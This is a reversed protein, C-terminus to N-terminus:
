PARRRETPLARSRSAHAPAAGLIMLGTLLMCCSGPFSVWVGALLPLLTCSQLLALQRSPVIFRDIWDTGQGTAGVDFLARQQRFHALAARQEPDLPPASAVVRRHRVRDATPTSVFYGVAERHSVCPSAASACGNGGPDASGLGPLYPSFCALRAKSRLDARRDALRASACAISCLPAYDRVPGAYSFYAFSVSWDGLLSAV